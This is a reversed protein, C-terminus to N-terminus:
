FVRIFSKTHSGGPSDGANKRNWWLDLASSGTTEIRREPLTQFTLARATLDKVTRNSNLQAM